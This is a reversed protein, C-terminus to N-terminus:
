KASPAQRPAPQEPGDMRKKMKIMMGEDTSACGFLGLAVLAFVGRVVIHKMMMTKM